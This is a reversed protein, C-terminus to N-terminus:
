TRGGGRPACERKNGLLSEMSILQNAAGSASGRPGAAATGVGAVSRVSLAGGIFGSKMSPAGPPGLKLFRTLPQQCMSSAPIGFILGVTAGNCCYNRLFAQCLTLALAIVLYIKM